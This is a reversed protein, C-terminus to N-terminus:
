YYWKERVSETRLKTGPIIIGSRIQGCYTTHDLTDIKAAAMRSLRLLLFDEKQVFM